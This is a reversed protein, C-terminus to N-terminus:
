ENEEEMKKKTWEIIPQMTDIRNSLETLTSLIQHVDIPPADDGLASGCISCFLDFPSNQYNCSPCLGPLDNGLYKELADILVDTFTVGKDEAKKSIGLYVAEPIRATIQKKVPEMDWDRIVYPFYKINIHRLKNNYHM